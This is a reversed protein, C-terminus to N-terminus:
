DGSSLAFFVLMLDHSSAATAATCDDIRLDKGFGGGADEEPKVRPDM